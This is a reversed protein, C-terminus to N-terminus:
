KCINLFFCISSYFFWVWLGFYLFKIILVFENCIINGNVNVLILDIFSVDVFDVFVKVICEWIIIIVIIMVIGMVKGCNM